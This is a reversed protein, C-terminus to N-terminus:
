YVLGQSFMLNGSKFSKGLTDKKDDESLSYQKYNIKVERYKEKVDKPTIKIYANSINTLLWLPIIKQKFIWKTNKDKKSKEGPLIISGIVLNVKKYNDDDIELNEMMDDKSKLYIFIEDNHIIGKKKVTSM